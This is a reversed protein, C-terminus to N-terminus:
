HRLCSLVMQWFKQKDADKEDASQRARRGAERLADEGYSHRLIEAAEQPSTISWIDPTRPSM